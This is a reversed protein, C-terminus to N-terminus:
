EADAPVLLELAAEALHNVEDATTRHDVASSGTPDAVDDDLSAGLLDMPRRGDHLRALWDAVTEDHARPGVDQGRRVFEKLTYTRVFAPPELLVIEQIHRRELGLILDAGQVEARVLPRSAHASIDLGMRRAADVTPPTAPMGDVAQIGASTVDILHSRDAAQAVLAAAALPSRCQNATCVVLIHLQEGAM